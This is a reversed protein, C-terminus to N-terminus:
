SYIIPKEIYPRKEKLIVYCIEAMRRAVAITAKNAGQRERVRTYYYRFYSSHKIAVQAAETLAWRIFKNGQKTIKGTYSKAGSQHISPVLGAYSTFKEKSSFRNISDIESKLIFATFNGIGPITRLLEIDKDITLRENIEAEIAKIKKNIDSILDLYNKLIMYDPEPIKTSRLISTGTKGFIDTLNELGAYYDKNRDIVEIYRM